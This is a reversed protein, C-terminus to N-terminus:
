GITYVEVSQSASGGNKAVGEIASVVAAKYVKNLTRYTENVVINNNRVILDVVKLKYPKSFYEKTGSIYYM